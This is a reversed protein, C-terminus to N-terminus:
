KVERVPCWRTGKMSCTGRYHKECSIYNKPHKGARIASLALELMEMANKERRAGNSVDVQQMKGLGWCFLVFHCEVDERSLEIKEMLFKNYLTLQYVKRKQSQFRPAWGNASTKLDVIHAVGEADVIVVDIYGKFKKEFGEIPEYLLMETEVLTYDDGFSEKFFPVAKPLTKPLGAVMRDILDFRVAPLNVESRVLSIFENQCEKRYEDSYEWVGGSQRAQYEDNLMKEVCNHVATGYCSYEDSYDPAVREVHALWHYHPCLDWDM